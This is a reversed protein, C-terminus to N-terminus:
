GNTLSPTLPGSGTFDFSISAKDDVAVEISPLKIIAKGTFKISDNLRLELTVMQRNLAANILAVQGEEDDPAFNGELSGSWGTLGPLYEKWGDSDFNTVDIDDPGDPDLSWNSIEAVKQSTSGDTFYVGGGYGAIAM